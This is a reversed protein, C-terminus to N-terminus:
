EILQDKALMVLPNFTAFDAQHVLITEIVQPRGDGEKSHCAIINVLEDELGIEAALIAGSIPHRACKGQRSKRYGGSPDKQIELLKGVDHLLGGAVLRDMDIIYPLTNYTNIQAEALGIASETVAITHEIFNIGKCDTLLTFPIKKLQDVSEWGGRECGLLWADIVKKKLDESTIRSLQKSFLAELDRRSIM